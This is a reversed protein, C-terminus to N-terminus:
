LFFMSVILNLLALGIVILLIQGFSKYEQYHKILYHKVRPSISVTGLYIFSLGFVLFLISAAASFPGTIIAGDSAGLVPHNLNTIGGVFFVIAFLYSIIGSGIQRKDQNDLIEQPVEKEEGFVRRINKIALPIILILLLTYSLLQIIFISAEPIPTLRITISVAILIWFITKQWTNLQPLM